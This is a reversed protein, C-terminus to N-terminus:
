FVLTAVAAATEFAFRHRIKQSAVVASSSYDVPGFDRQLENYDYLSQRKSVAAAALDMTRLIRQRVSGTEM